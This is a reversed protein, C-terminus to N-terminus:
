RIWLPHVQSSLIRCIEENPKRYLRLAVLLPIVTGFGVSYHASPRFNEALFSPFENGRNVYSAIYGAMNRAVEIRREKRMDGFTWCKRCAESFISMPCDVFSLYTGIRVAPTKEMNESQLTATNEMM